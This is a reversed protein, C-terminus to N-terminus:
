LIIESLSREGDRRRDINCRAKYSVLSILSFSFHFNETSAPLIVLDKEYLQYNSLEGHLKGGTVSGVFGNVYEYFKVM